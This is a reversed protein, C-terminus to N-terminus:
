QSFSSKVDHFGPFAYRSLFIIICTGKRFFSSIGQLITFLFNSLSFIYQNFSSLQMSLPQVKNQLPINRICNPFHTVPNHPPSSQCGIGTM